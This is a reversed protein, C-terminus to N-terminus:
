NKNKNYIMLNPFVKKVKDKSKRNLTNEIKQNITNLFYKDEKLHITSRKNAKDEENNKYYKIYFPNGLFEHNKNNKELSLFRFMQNNDDNKLNNNSTMLINMKNKVNKREKNSQLRQIVKELFHNNKPETKLVVNLSVLNNNINIEQHNNFIYNNNRAEKKITNSQSNLNIIKLNNLKKNEGIKLKKRHHNKKISCSRCGLNNRDYNPESSKGNIIDNKNINNSYGFISNIFKNKKNNRQYYNNINQAPSSIITIKNNFIINNPEKKISDFNRRKQTLIIKDKISMKNKKESLEGKETTTIINDNKNIEEDMNGKKKASIINCNIGVSKVPSKESEHKNKNILFKQLFDLQGQPIKISKINNIKENNKERIINKVNLHFIKKNDKVNIKRNQRDLSKYQNYKSNIDLSIGKKNQSDYKKENLKSNYNNNNKIFSLEKKENKNQNTNGIIKNKYIGILHSATEENGETVLKQEKTKINKNTVIINSNKITNDKLLIEPENSNQKKENNNFSTLLYPDKKNKSTQSTDEKNINNLNNFINQYINNKFHFDGKMKLRKINNFTYINGKKRRITYFGSNRKDVSNYNFFNNNQVEDLTEENEEYQLNYFNKGKLYFPHQKIEEITIRDRPEPNLLWILLNISDDELFDPFEPECEVISQFIEQNDDGDFPLYGCLMAYLIIGCCWIDTKFGDYPFGKLIEPAAYSPSGCKTKLFKRENFDHCLGFDIIKLIKEKTLLLNEPKLDRHAFGQKHIYEVGNILQYFFVSAEIPNLKEKEVIYDFLEGQECYEMIIYYNKEDELIKDVYIINPHKLRSIIQIENFLTSKTQSKLKEKDLIKIAFKEKTSNLVSLKVKGFNGEGIDKIFSYDKLIVPKEETM